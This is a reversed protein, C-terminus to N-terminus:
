NKYSTKLTQYLMNFGDRIPKVTTLNDENTLEVPVEIIKLGLENLKFVIETDIFFYEQTLASSISKLKESKVIISGQTDRYNLKLRQCYILFTAFHGRVLSKITEFQDLQAFAFHRLDIIM